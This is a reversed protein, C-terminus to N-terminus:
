DLRLVAQPISHPRQRKHLEGRTYAQNRGSLKLSLRTVMDHTRSPPAGAPLAMLWALLLLPVWPPAHM